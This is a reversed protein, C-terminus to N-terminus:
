QRELRMMLVHDTRRQSLEKYRKHVKAVELQSLMYDGTRQDLTGILSPEPNSTKALQGTHFGLIGAMFVRLHAVVVREGNDVVEQGDEGIQQAEQHYVPQLHQWISQVAELDFNNNDQIFGMHTMIATMTVESIRTDEDLSFQRLVEYLDKEFRKM